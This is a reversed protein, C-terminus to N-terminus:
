LLFSQRYNGHFAQEFGSHMEPMLYFAPIRPHFFVDERFPVPDVNDIEL